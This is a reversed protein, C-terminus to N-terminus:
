HGPQFIYGAAATGIATQWLDVRWQWTRLSGTGHCVGKGSYVYNVFTMEISCDWRANPYATPWHKGSGWLTGAGTALDLDYNLTNVELGDLHPNNWVADERLVLGRVSMVSGNMTTTGPDLVTTAHGPTSVPIRTTTALAGPAMAAVLLGGTALALVLRRM